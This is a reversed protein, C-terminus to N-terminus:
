MMDGLIYEIVVFPFFFTHPMIIKVSLVVKSLLSFHGFGKREISRMLAYKRKNVQSGSDDKLLSNGATLKVPYLQPVSLFSGSLPTLIWGEKHNFPPKVKWWVDSLWLGEGAPSETLAAPVFRLATVSLWREGSSASWFSLLWRDHSWETRLSLVLSPCSCCWASAWAHLHFHM